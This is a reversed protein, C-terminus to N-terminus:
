LERSALIFVWGIDLLAIFQAKRLNSRKCLYALLTIIDRKNIPLRYLTMVYGRMEVSGDPKIKM